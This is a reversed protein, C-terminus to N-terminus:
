IRILKKMKLWKSFHQCVIMEFVHTLTNNVQQIHQDVRSVDKVKDINEPLIGRQIRFCFIM